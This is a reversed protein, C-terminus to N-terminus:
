PWRVRANLCSRRLDSLLITRMWATSGTMKRESCMSNGMISEWREPWYFFAKCNQGRSYSRRSAWSWSPTTDLPRYKLFLLPIENGHVPVRYELVLGDKGSTNDAERHYVSGSRHHQPPIPGQLGRGDHTGNKNSKEVIRGHYQTPDVELPYGFVDAVARAVAQKSIDLSGANIIKSRSVPIKQLARPDSFPANQRKFAVDFRRTPDATMAYGLLACIRYETAAKHPPPRQPYFLITKSPRLASRLSATADASLSNDAFKRRVLFQGTIDKLWDRRDRLTRLHRSPLARKIRDRIVRM